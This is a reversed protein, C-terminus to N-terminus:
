DGTTKKLGAYFQAALLILFPLFPHLYRPEMAAILATLCLALVPLSLLTKAFASTESTQKGVCVLLLAPATIFVMTLIQSVIALMQYPTFGTPFTRIGAVLAILRSLVGKIAELPHRLIWVANERLVSEGVEVTRFKGSFSGSFAPPLYIEPKTGDWLVMRVNDSDGYNALAYRGIDNSILVPHGGNKMTMFVSEPVVVALMFGLFLVVAAARKRLPKTKDRLMWIGFALAVLLAVAKFIAALGIFFGALALLRLNGKRQSVAFALVSSLLLFAFPTEALAYASEDFLGFTVASIALAILATRKGYLERGLAYILLMIGISLLLQATQFASVWNLKPGLVAALYLAPGLPWMVDAATWHDLEPHWLLTANRWYNWMDSYVYTQMYELPTHAAHMPFIWLWRLAAGLFIILSVKLVRKM